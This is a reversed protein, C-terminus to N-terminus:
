APQTRRSRRRLQMWVLGIAALGAFVLGGIEGIPVPNTGSSSYTGDANYTIFTSMEPDSTGTQSAGSFCYVVFEQNGGAAVGSLSQITSLSLNLSGSFPNTVSNTGASISFTTPPTATGPVIAKFVASGQFGTKCAVNTSWTPPSSIQGSAPVLAVAGPESGVGAAQAAAVGVGGLLGGVLGLMVATRGLRSKLKPLNM